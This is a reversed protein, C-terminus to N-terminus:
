CDVTGRCGPYASCGWFEKGVQPGQKARRKVMPQSCKPCNPAAPVPVSPTPNQLPSERMAGAERILQHLRAGNFLQINLGRAFTTADASFEGSTIVFGGAAGQAAIVGYLERVPQVGVKYAKWQKDEENSDSM